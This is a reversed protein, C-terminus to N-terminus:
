SLSGDAGQAYYTAGGRTPDHFQITASLGTETPQGETHWSLEVEYHPQVCGSAIVILSAFRLMRRANRLAPRIPQRKVRNERMPPSYSSVTTIREASAHTGSLLRRFCFRRADRRPM